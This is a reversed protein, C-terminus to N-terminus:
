ILWPFLVFFYCVSSCIVILSIPDTWNSKNKGKNVDYLQRLPPQSTRERRASSRLYSGWAVFHRGSGAARSRPEGCPPASRVRGPGRCEGWFKGSYCESRGSSAAVRNHIIRWQNLLYFTQTKSYQNVNKILWINIMIFYTLIESM